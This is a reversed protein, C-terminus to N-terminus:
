ISFVDEFEHRSAPMQIDMAVLPRGARDCVALTTTLVVEREGIQLLEAEEATPLRASLREVVHDFTVAKRRAIHTLLGEDIPAPDGIDTGAALTEALYATGLEIPGVTEVVLLRRRAIVSEGAEIDLVAAARPPAPVPGASLVNVDARETGELLSYSRTSARRADVPPRARVTRGKGHHADIWGQQRLLELARVVTPRSVNFEQILASESPLTSDPPYTGDLIRAQITNVILAYKPLVSEIPM